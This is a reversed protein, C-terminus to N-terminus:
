MNPEGPSSISQGSNARFARGPIVTREFHEAITWRGPSASVLFIPSGHSQRRADPEVLMRTVNPVVTVRFSKSHEVLMDGSPSM